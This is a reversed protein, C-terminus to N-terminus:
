DSSSWLSPGGWRCPKVELQIIHSEKLWDKIIKESEPPIELTKSTKVQGM